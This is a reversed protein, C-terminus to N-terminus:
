KRLEQDQTLRYRLSITVPKATTLRFFRRWGGSMNLIDTDNIGGLLIELAGGTFGQNPQHIGSAFSPQNTNRFNDTRFVFGQGGNNFSAQLVIENPPPPPPSTSTRRVVVDDILIQTIEDNFTKKNNFGGITITHNGPQLTGTTLTLQYGARQETPDATEM